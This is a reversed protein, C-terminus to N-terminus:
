VLVTVTCLHLLGEVLALKAKKHFMDKIVSTPWIEVIGIQEEVVSFPEMALLSCRRRKM